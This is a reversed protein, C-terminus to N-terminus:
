QIELLCLMFFFFLNLEYSFVVFFVARTKMANFILKIQMFKALM